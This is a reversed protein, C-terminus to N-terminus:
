DFIKGDPYVQGLYHVTLLDGAQVEDGDGEILTHVGLKGPAPATSGDAQFGTPTGSDDLSLQPLDAPLERVPGSVQERPSPDSAKKIDFVFVVTDNAGIQAQPNGRQGFLQSPPIAAAVRDGAQKGVLSDIIGPFMQQQALTFTQPQGSQYSSDFTKGTKANVAVYDVLVTSGPAIQTGEGPSVVGSTTESVSLGQDVQVTPEAGPKGTVTVGSLAQSGAQSGADDGEGCSALVFLAPILLVLLRRM